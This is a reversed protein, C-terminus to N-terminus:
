IRGMKRGISRTHLVLDESEVASSPEQDFARKPIIPGPIAVRASNMDLLAKSHRRLVAPRLM